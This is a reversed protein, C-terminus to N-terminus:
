FTNGLKCAKAIKKIEQDTKINRLKDTDFHKTKQFHKTLSKYELVTLENEEIGLIKIQKKLDQFLKETPNQHSREFLKFHPVQKKIVESYRGDTIIYQFNGGVLLYAEREYLSFNEYGTLYTINAVDAILVAGLNAKKLKERLKQLRLNFM